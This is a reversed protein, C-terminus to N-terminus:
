IDNYGELIGEALTRVDYIYNGLDIRCGAGLDPRGFHFGIASPGQEFMASLLDIVEWTPTHCADIKQGKSLMLPGYLADPKTSIIKRRPPDFLHESPVVYRSNETPIWSRRTFERRALASLIFISKWRTRLPVSYALRNDSLAM